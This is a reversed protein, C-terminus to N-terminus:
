GGALRHSCSGALVHWSQPHRFASCFSHPCSYQQELRRLSDPPFLAYLQYPTGAVIVTWVLLVMARIASAHEVSGWRYEAANPRV